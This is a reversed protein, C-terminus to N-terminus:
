AHSKRACIAQITHAVLKTRVKPAAEVRSGRQTQQQQEPAESFRRSSDDAAQGEDDEAEEGQGDSTILIDILGQNFAQVCFTHFCKGARVGWFVCHLRM